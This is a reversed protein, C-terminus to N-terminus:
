LVDFHQWINYVFIVNIFYLVCIATGWLLQENAQNVTHLMTAMNSPLPPLQIARLSLPHHPWMPWWDDCQSVTVESRDCAVFFRHVTCLARTLPRSDAFLVTWLLRMEWGEPLKSMYRYVYQTECHKTESVNYVNWIIFWDHKAYMFYGNITKEYSIWSKIDM